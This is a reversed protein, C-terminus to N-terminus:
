AAKDPMSDAFLRPLGDGEFLLQHKDFFALWERIAPRSEIPTDAVSEQWAVLARPAENWILDIEAEPLLGRERIYQTMSGPKKEAGRFGKVEKRWLGEVKKLRPHARAELLVIRRLITPSFEDVEAPKTALCMVCASKMPVPLGEAQIRRICDDRTWGWERLPYRFDYKGNVHGEREAYRKVDAPSCDYGIVKVVKLGQSWATNALEWTNTWKDQPAIKAKASCASFGFSISPLTGNVLCNEYLGEYPPWHKYNSVKNAVFEFPVGHDILWQGFMEAYADTEPKESNTRAMLVQDLPDGRAIMEILMATSDVGGGYAALVPARGLPARFFDEQMEITM